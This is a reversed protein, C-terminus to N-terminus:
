NGHWRLVRVCEGMANTVLALEQESLEGLRSAVVQELAERGESPKLHNLKFNLQSLRIFLLVISCFSSSMSISDM